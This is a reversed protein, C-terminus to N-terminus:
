GGIGFNAQETVDVEPVYVLRFGAAALRSREPDVTLADAPKGLDGLYGCFEPLPEGQLSWSAPPAGRRVWELAGFQLLMQAARTSTGSLRESVERVSSNLRKLLESIRDDRKEVLARMSAPRQAHAEKYLKTWEKETPLRYKDGCWSAFRQAESPRVGTLLARFYNASNLARPTARPNLRLIEDYWEADFHTDPADSLFYEFQIKTVPLWHVYAQIEPSWVMPFGVPDTKPLTM